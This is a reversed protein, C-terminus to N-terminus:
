SIVQWNQRLVNCKIVGQCYARLRLRPCLLTLRRLKANCFLCSKDTSMALVENFFYHYLYNVGSLTRVEISKSTWFDVASANFITLFM